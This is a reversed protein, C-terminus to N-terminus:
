VHRPVRGGPLLLHSNYSSYASPFMAFSCCHCLRVAEKAAEMDENYNVTGISEQAYEIEDRAEVFLDNIEETKANIQADTLSAFCRFHVRTASFQADSAGALWSSM